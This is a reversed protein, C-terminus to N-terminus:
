DGDSSGGNEPYEAVMRGCDKDQFVRTKVALLLWLVIAQVRATKLTQFGQKLSWGVNQDAPKYGRIGLDAIRDTDTTEVWVMYQM